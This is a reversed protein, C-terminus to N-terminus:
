KDNKNFFMEKAENKVYELPRYIYDENDDKEKIGLDEIKPSFTKYEHTDNVGLNLYVTEAQEDAYVATCIFILLAFINKM